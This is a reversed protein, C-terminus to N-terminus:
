RLLAMRANAEELSRNTYKLDLDFSFCKVLGLSQVHLVETTVRHFINVGVGATQM